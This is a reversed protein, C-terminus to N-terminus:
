AAAESAPRLRALFIAPALALLTAGIAMATVGLVDLAVGGLLALSAGTLGALLDNLGLLKGREAPSTADALQATASVFSLNWGLGLGFLLVATMPIGTVWMLGACSFAMVVLGGGLAPGRGIRDIVRGIVLVLAYMGLVHAGIIPFVSQQAHHHHDVVVFGTLNMVSVMVGFSAIAALMAPIVGPRRVIERLPAAPEPAHTETRAAIQEAIVKTDPRVTVVVAAAVLSLAGAVLWPVTLTSAAVDKGAFLPGFVAPGLVAGFVAGVLVLSIGRARRKPPYMDGAAARILLTVAGSAGVLAFGAIVAVSSDWRTGAATLVCGATGLVFGTAIVPVRGFRDMARGTPFASLASALLFIAPGAGLLSRFGTVLVFTLSLVAAGLQLVASYIAMVSALIATNRKINLDDTM